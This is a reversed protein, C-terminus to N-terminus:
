DLAGFLIIVDMGIILFIDLEAQM